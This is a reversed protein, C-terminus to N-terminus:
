WGPPPINWAPSGIKLHHKNCTGGNQWYFIELATTRMTLACHPEATKLVAPTDTNQFLVDAGGNILNTVTKTEKPPDFWGNVWVVKTKVKPNSSQAGLTFANINRVGEPIPISAVVGLTNAKTIKGAIVGAMYAGEYTRSDCTRMNEAQKYGTAHQLLPQNCADVLHEQQQTRQATPLHVDDGEDGM